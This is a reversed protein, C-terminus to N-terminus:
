ELEIPRSSRGSGYEGDGHGRGRVQDRDGGCEGGDPDREGDPDFERQDGHHDASVDRASDYFQHDGDADFHGGRDGDGALFEGDSGGAARECEADGGWQIREGGWHEHYFDDREGGGGDAFEPDSDSQLKATAPDGGGDLECEGDPDFEWQDRYDDTDVDWAADNWQHDGDADFQGFREGQEWLSAFRRSDREPGYECM